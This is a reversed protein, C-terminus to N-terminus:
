GNVDLTLYTVNKIIKNSSFNVNDVYEKYKYIVTEFDPALFAFDYKKYGSDNLEVVALILKAYGYYSPPVVKSDYFFSPPQRWWLNINIPTGTSDYDYVIYIRSNSM